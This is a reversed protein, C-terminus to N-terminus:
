SNEELIQDMRTQIKDICTKWTYREQVRDYFKDVKQNIDKIKNEYLNRMHTKVQEICPRGGVMFEASIYFPTLFESFEPYKGRYEPKNTKPNIEWTGCSDIEDVDIVMSVSDDVFDSLGTHAPLIQPIKVAAAEIATLGFGEGRSPMVHCDGWGYMEAQHEEELPDAHIYIPPITNQDFTSILKRLKDYVVAKSNSVNLIHRCFLVLSVDDKRKHFEECFAKLLIDFGKRQTYRSVCLFKYGSPYEPFDGVTNILDFKCDYKEVNPKFKEEDFWLPMVEIKVDEGVKEQFQNKTYNTPVWIENPYTKLTDIIYQSISFTELMTYTINYACHPVKSLPVYSIVKICDDKFSEEQTCKRENYKRQIEYNVEVDGSAKTSFFSINYGEDQLHFAIKRTVNSYSIYDLFSGFWVIKKDVIKSTLNLSFEEGNQNKIFLPKSYGNKFVVSYNNPNQLIDIPIDKVWPLLKCKIGQSRFPNFISHLDSTSTATIKDDFMRSQLVQLNEENYVIDFFM